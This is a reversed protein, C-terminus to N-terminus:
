TLRMKNGNKKICHIATGLRSSVTIVKEFGCLTHRNHGTHPDQYWKDQVLKLEGSDNQNYLCRVM